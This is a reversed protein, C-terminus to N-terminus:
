TRVARESLFLVCSLVENFDETLRKFTRLRPRLGFAVLPIALLALSSAIGCDVRRNSGDGESGRRQSSARLRRPLGVYLVSRKRLPRYTSAFLTLKKDWLSAHCLLAPVVTGLVCGECGMRRQSSRWRRPLGM